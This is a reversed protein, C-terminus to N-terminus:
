PVTMGSLNRLAATGTGPAPVAPLGPPLEPTGPVIKAGNKGASELNGLLTPFGHDGCKQARGATPGEASGARPARPKASIGNWWSPLAARSNGSGLSQAWSTWCPAPPPSAPRPPCSTSCLRGHLMGISMTNTWLGERVDWSGQVRDGEGAAVMPLVLVLWPISLRRGSLGRWSHSGGATKPCGSRTPARVSVGPLMGM